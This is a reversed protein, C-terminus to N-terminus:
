AVEEILLKPDLIPLPKPAGAVPAYKGPISITLSSLVSGDVIHTAKDSSFTLGGRGYWRGGVQKGDRMPKDGVFTVAYRKDSFFTRTEGTLTKITITKGSPKEVDTKEPPM